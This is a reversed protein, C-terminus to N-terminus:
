RLSQNDTLFPTICPNWDVGGDSASVVQVTFSIYACFNWDVGGDSASVKIKRLKEGKEAIEIWEAM